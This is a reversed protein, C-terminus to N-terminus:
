SDRFPRGIEDEGDLAHVLGEIAEFGDRVEIEVEVSPSSRVTMPGLPAPLDVKKSRMVPRVLGSVPLISKPV